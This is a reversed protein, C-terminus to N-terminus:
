STQSLYHEAHHQLHFTKLINKSQPSKQLFNESYLNESLHAFQIKKSGNSKKHNLNQKM